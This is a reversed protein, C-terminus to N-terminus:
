SGEDADLDRLSQETQAVIEANNANRALELATEFDKRAEDKLGLAHKVIGRIYYADVYDPKLRIAEDYDAIAADYRKLMYKVNGRGHFAEVYDPKLRIAEDYDAIAADYRELMYKVNGRGHFAEAYDPKLRIAEDYDTIAADHRELAANAIGRNNYVVYNPKLRIARSYAIIGDEPSEEQVLYGVSFWARAAQDNDSEEAVHAVARWKEIADDRKGQQQLSVALAITRSIPSAEPNERINKVALSANEPDDVVTEANMSQILKKAKDRNKEIEGVHRKAAEALKTVTEVSTKAETEIERFRRFGLFGAIPIVIGFVTLVIAIAALWRDIANARDDLYERWLENFRGQIEVEVVAPAVLRAPPPIQASTGDDASNENDTSSANATTNKTAAPVSKIVVETTKAFTIMPVSVAITATILGVQVGTMLLRIM